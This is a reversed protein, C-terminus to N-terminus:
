ILDTSFVHVLGGIVIVSIKANNDVDSIAGTPSCSMNFSNNTNAQLLSTLNIVDSGDKEILTFVFGDIAMPVDTPSSDVYNMFVKDPQLWVM